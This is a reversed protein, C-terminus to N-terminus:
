IPEVNYTDGVSKLEARKKTSILPQIIGFDKKNLMRGIGVKFINTLWDENDSLTIIKKLCLEM